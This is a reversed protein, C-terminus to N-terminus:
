VKVIMYRKFIGERIEQVKLPQGKIFEEVAKHCGPWVPDLYEDLLIVGGRELRPYFFHLCNRYSEYLDCDLHVLSFRKYALKPFSAEFKGPLLTVKSALGFARIRCAVLGRSTKGFGGVKKIGSAKGGLEIDTQVEDGFGSFTDLGYLRKELNLERAYLGMPILSHGRYVGCEVLDGPVGATRRLLNMLILASPGYRDASVMAREAAPLRIELASSLWAPWSELPRSRLKLAVAARIFFGILPIAAAQKIFFEGKM